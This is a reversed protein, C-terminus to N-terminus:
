KNELYTLGYMEQYKREWTAPTFILTSVSGCDMCYKYEDSYTGEEWPESADECKIAPSLCKACVLMPVKNYDRKTM